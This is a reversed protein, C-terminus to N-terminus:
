NEDRETGRIFRAKGEDTRHNVNGFNEVFKNKREREGLMYVECEVNCTSFRCSGRATFM